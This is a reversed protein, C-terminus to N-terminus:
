RHPLLYSALAAAEYYEDAAANVEIEAKAPVSGAERILLRLDRATSPGCTGPGACCRPASPIPSPPGWAQGAEAARACAQTVDDPNALGLSGLETGTAPEVVAYRGCAGARWDGSYIRSRWRGEDLWDTNTRPEATATM